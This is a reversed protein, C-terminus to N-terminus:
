HGSRRPMRDIGRLAVDLDRGERSYLALIQVDLHLGRIVDCEAVGGATGTKPSAAAWASRAPHATASVIVSLIMRLSWVAYV